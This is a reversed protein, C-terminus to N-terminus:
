SPLCATDIEEDAAKGTLVEADGPFPGPEAPGAGAEEVFEDADRLREPRRPAEDLVYWPKKGAM